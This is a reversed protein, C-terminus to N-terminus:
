NFNSDLTYFVYMKKWKMARQLFDYERGARSGEVRGVVLFSFFFSSLSLSLNNWQQFDSIVFPRAAKKIKAKLTSMLWHYLRYQIKLGCSAKKIVLKGHPFPSTGNWLTLICCKIFRYSFNKVKSKGLWLLQNIGESMQSSKTSDFVFFQFPLYYVCSGLQVGLGWVGQGSGKGSCLWGACQRPEEWSMWSHRRPWVSLFQPCNWRTRTGKIEMSCRLDSAAEATRAWKLPYDIKWSFAPFLSDREYFSKCFTIMTSINGKFQRTWPPRRSGSNHKM